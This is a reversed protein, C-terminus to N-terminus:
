EGSAIDRHHTDAGGGAAQFGASPQQRRQRGAVAHTKNEDLMEIRGVFAHHHVQQGGARGHHHLLGGVSHQDLAIVDVDDRGSGIEGNALAGQVERLGQRTMTGAQWEVKQQMRQGLLVAGAGDAQNQRSGPGVAADPQFRHLFVAPQDDRLVGVLGAEVAHRAARDHM